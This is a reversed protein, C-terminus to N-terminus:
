GTENKRLRLMALGVWGIGLALLVGLIAAGAQAVAQPLLEAIFFEFFFGVSAGLILLGAPRPLVRARVTAIGTMLLGIALSLGLGFLLASEPPGQQLAPYLIPPAGYLVLLFLGLSLLVHGIMGIAGAARAQAAYLGPLGLVLLIASAMLLGAVAVPPQGSTVPTATLRILGLGFAASGIVLATGSLRIAIVAPSM